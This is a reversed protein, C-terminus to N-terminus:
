LGLAAGTDFDLWAEGFRRVVTEVEEQSYMVAPTSGWMPLGWAPSQRHALWMDDNGPLHDVGLKLLQNKYHALLEREHARRDSVDLASIIAYSVDHTWPGRRALQWDLLGVAGDPLFYINGPHADGHLFTQPMANLSEQRLWFAKQMQARDIGIDRLIAAKYAIQFETDIPDWGGNQLFRTLRGETSTEFWALESTLRPSQWYAAHLTALTQLLNAVRDVGLAPIVKPCIAHRDNLNELFLYFEGPNEGLASAFLKPAEISLEANILEYAKTETAYMALALDGALTEAFGSPLADRGADLLTKVFMQQPLAPQSQAYRLELLLHSASGQHQSVIHVDSVQVGPYLPRLAATVNAPTFDEVKRFFM